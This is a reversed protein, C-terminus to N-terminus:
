GNIIDGLIEKQKEILEQTGRSGLELKDLLQKNSFPAEEGTGQLEIFEGKDTMIINMDVQANSDEKYCLDLVAQNDVIGVSIASVYSTLPNKNILKQKVLGDCAIALAVFAGTISATRTGGDAQLVDCDVTITREGLAKFDVVSRLSRGILRSIEVTRKNQKLRSIDRQRRDHTARPLMDYEATVWGEGSDMKFKPVREEVTANCLVKTDGMEILVSGEPHKIYDTHFKISRLENSQRGDIRAM